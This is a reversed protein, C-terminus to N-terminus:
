AISDEPIVRHSKVPRKRVVHGALKDRLCDTLFLSHMALQLM